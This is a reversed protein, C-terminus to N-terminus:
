FKYKNKLFYIYTGSKYGLFARCQDLAILYTGVINIKLSMIKKKLSSILKKKKKWGNWFTNYKEKINIYIASTILHNM